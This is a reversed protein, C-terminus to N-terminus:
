AEEMEKLAESIAEYIQPYLEPDIDTFKTEGGTIGKIIAATKKLGKKVAQAAFKRMFPETLETDQSGPAAKKKPATKKVPKKEESEEAPAAEDIEFAVRADERTDELPREAIRELASAIRELVTSLETLKIEM